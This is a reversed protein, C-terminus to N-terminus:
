TGEMAHRECRAKAPQPPTAPGRAEVARSPSILRVLQFGLLAIATWPTGRARFSATENAFVPWSSSARRARGRCRCRAPRMPAPGGSRAPRLSNARASARSEAHSDLSHRWGSEPWGDRGARASRLEGRRNQDPRGFLARRRGGARPPRSRLVAGTASVLVRSSARRTAGSRENEITAYRGSPATSRRSTAPATTGSRDHDPQAAVTRCRQPAHIGYRAARRSRAATPARASLCRTSTRAGCVFRGASGCRRCRAM